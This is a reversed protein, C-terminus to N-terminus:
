GADNAEAFLKLILEYAVDRFVFSTFFLEKNEKTTISISNDFVMANM